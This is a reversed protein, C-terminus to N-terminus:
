GVSIDLNALVKHSEPGKALDIVHLQQKVIDVFRLTNTAEEWFPGEGLGCQLKLYPQAFSM